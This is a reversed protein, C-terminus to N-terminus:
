RHILAGHDLLQAIAAAAQPRGFWYGQAEHCGHSQLLQAQAATEVGEAIVRLDLAKGMQIIARVIAEDSPDDCIDRVFSMDIKLKDVDIKKLYGLSSYGTGFDDISLKVGLQKFKQITEFATDVDKLLISETLELELLHPPFQSNELIRAVRGFFDARSFQLASINVAIPIEGLGDNLWETGQRAAEWLVWEGIPVILGSDEAIPIFAAPPVPGRQPHTWRLLAELGVIAGTHLLVQPQYHLVFEQQALAQRLGIQMANRAMAEDNMQQTYFRASNKGAAKAEYMASDAKSLLVDFDQGDDPYFAIGISASVSDYGHNEISVGSLRRLINQAVRAAVDAHPLDALMVIFEDGGQRCITDLSRVEERLCAVVNILLQDGAHHGYTDNVHKFNDLDLFLIGIRTNARLAQAHAQTFRDRLLVRNPLHTLADHHALFAIKRETEKRETIDSFVAVYNLVRGTADRLVSISYWNPFVTGDKRQNWLEGKWAGDRLLAQWFAAFFAADHHGSALMAPTNGIAESEAYGTILTFARNVTVIANYEDTVLIGELSNNFVEAALRLRESVERELNRQHEQQLSVRLRQMLSNVDDALRGLENKQHQEPVKLWDATMADMAHLQDSLDKVPRLVQLAMVWGIVLVLAVSAGLLTAVSYRMERVVRSEINAWHPQVVLEGIADTVDFPSVLRRVISPAAGAAPVAVPISKSVKALTKRATRIQVSAVDSLEALGAATERALAADDAFCAVAAMNVSSEVAENLRQLAQQEFRQQTLYLTLMASLALVAFAALAVAMLTRRLLGRGVLIEKRPAVAVSLRNQPM